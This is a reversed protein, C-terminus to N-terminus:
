KNIEALCNRNNNEYIYICRHVCIIRKCKKEKSRRMRKGGYCLSTFRIRIRTTVFKSCLFFVKYYRQHNPETQKLSLMQMCNANCKHVAGCHRLRFSFHFFFCFSSTCFTFVLMPDRSPANHWRMIASKSTFFPRRSNTFHCRPRRLSRKLSVDTM